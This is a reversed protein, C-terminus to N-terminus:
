QLTTTSVGTFRVMSCRSNSSFNSPVKTPSPARRCEGLDLVNRSPTFPKQSRITDQGPGRPGTTAHTSRAGPASVGTWGAPSSKRWRSFRGRRQKRLLEDEGTLWWGSCGREGEFPLRGHWPKGAHAFALLTGYLLPFESAVKTPNAGMCRLLPVDRAAIGDQRDLRRVDPLPM